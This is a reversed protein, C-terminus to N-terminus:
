NHLSGNLVTADGEEELGKMNNLIYKALENRAQKLEPDDVWGFADYYDPLPLIFKGKLEKCNVFYHTWNM